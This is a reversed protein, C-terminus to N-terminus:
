VYGHAVEPLWYMNPGLKGRLNERAYYLRSKVTGIPLGLIEAIAQLNLGNLYYLVVV